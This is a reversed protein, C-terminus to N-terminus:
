SADNEEIPSCKQVLHIGDQFVRRDFGKVKAATEINAATQGVAEKDIGRVIIEDKKVDVTTGDYIRATRDKREGLFNQIVATNGQVNFKIPFHSYVIKLKAEWGQTVGTIMNRCHSAWTGVIAKTKRRDSDSSITIENGKIEMKVNPNLFVRRLEGKPGKVSLEGSELRVEVGEPIEVKKIM